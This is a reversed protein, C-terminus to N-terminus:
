HGESTESTRRHERQRGLECARDAPIQVQTPLSGMKPLSRANERLIQCGLERDIAEM